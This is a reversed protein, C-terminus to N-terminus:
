LTSSLPEADDDTEAQIKVDSFYPPISPHTKRTLKYLKGIDDTNLKYKRKRMQMEVFTKAM